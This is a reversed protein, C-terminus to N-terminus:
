FILGVVLLFLYFLKVFEMFLFLYQKFMFQGGYLGMFYFLYYMVIFVDKNCNGKIVEVMFEVFVVCSKVECGVNVQYDKDWDFLYWELDILVIVLKDNIEIEELDGCGFDLFFVDEWDLYKEIFKKQWKLGDIGYKDWDYNGVIFFVNGEYDLVINFQVKFCEEDQVWDVGLIFVMGNFYINDGLFLVISEKGVYQVRCELFDLVFNSGKGVDGVLFVMYM